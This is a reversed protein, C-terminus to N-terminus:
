FDTEIREGTKPHIYWGKEYLAGKVRKEGGVDKASTIFLGQEAWAIPVIGGLREVSPLRVLNKFRWPRMLHIDPRHDPIDSPLGKFGSGDWVYDASRAEKFDGGTHTYASPLYIRQKSIEERTWRMPNPIHEIDWGLLVGERHLRIKIRLSGGRQRLEDLLDDPIRDAVPVKWQGILEGSPLVEGQKGFKISSQNPRYLSANLFKFLGPQRIARSTQVGIGGVVYYDLDDYILCVAGEPPGKFIDVMFEYGSVGRFKHMRRQEEETYTRQPRSAAPQACASLGSVSMLAGFSQCIKRRMHNM